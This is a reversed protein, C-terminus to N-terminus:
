FLFVYQGVTRSVRLRPDLPWCPWGGESVRASFGEPARPAEPPPWPAKTDKAQLQMGGGDARVDGPMRGTHRDEGHGKGPRRLVGTLGLPNPSVRIVEEENSLWVLFRTVSLRKWMDKVPPGNMRFMNMWPM